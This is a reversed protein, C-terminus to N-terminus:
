RYNAEATPDPCYSGGTVRIRDATVDFVLEEDGGDAHTVFVVGDPEFTMDLQGLPLGKPPEALAAGAARKDRESLKRSFAGRLEAPVQPAGSAAPTATSQKSPAESATPADDSGCASLAVTCAVLAGQLRMRSFM